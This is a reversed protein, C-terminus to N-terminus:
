ERGSPFRLFTERYSPDWQSPLNLAPLANCVFAPCMLMHAGIGWLRTEHVRTVAQSFVPFLMLQDCLTLFSAQSYLVLQTCSQLFPEVFLRAFLSALGIVYMIAPTTYGSHTKCM